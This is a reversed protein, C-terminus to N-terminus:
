IFLGHGVWYEDGACAEGTASNGAGQGICAAFDVQNIATRMNAAIGKILQICMAHQYVAIPRMDKVGIAFFHPFEKGAKRFPPRIFMPYQAHHIALMVGERDVAVREVQQIAQIQVFGPSCRKKLTDTFRALRHAAALIHHEIGHPAIQIFFEKQVVRALLPAHFRRLELRTYRCANRHTGIRIVAIEGVGELGHRPKAVGLHELAHQIM